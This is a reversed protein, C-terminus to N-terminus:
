AAGHNSWRGRLGTGSLAERYNERSPNFVAFPGARRRADKIQEAIEDIENLLHKHAFEPPLDFFSRVDVLDKGVDLLLTWVGVKICDAGDEIKIDAIACGPEADIRKLIANRITPKDDRTLM